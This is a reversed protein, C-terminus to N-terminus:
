EKSAVASVGGLGTLVASVSDGPRFPVMPGLAGSLVIEGARLPRGLRAATEAVWRLAARPDGLCAAGTGTSAIEGNRELSMEVAVPDIEELPVRAEGLVFLGSSANDAVTDLISIDWDEVRSDVIELAPAVHGVADLVLAPDEVDRDLVFAIEAEIRAQQLLSSPVEDLASVDMDALLVGFDPQDVGLQEQVVPSTLGVKRGVRPNEPGERRALVLEQVRYAEELDAVRGRVPPAPRGTRLASHLADAVEAARM